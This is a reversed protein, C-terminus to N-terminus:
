VEFRGSKLWEPANPHFWDLTGGVFRAMELHAAETDNTYFFAEDVLTAMELGHALCRRYRREQDAEPVDHGGLSVRLKVRAKSLAISSLFVFHLATTYGAERCDTVTKFHNRGSLTSEVLFSKGGNINELILRHVERGSWILANASRPALKAIADPNIISADLSQLVNKFTHRECLTSKGSGNPGGVVICVAKM